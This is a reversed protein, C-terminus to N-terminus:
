DNTVEEVVYGLESLIRNYVEEPNYNVGNYCHASPQMVITVHDGINVIAGNAYNSGCTECDHEDTLWTIKIKEV